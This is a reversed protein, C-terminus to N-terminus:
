GGVVVDGPLLLLLRDCHSGTLVVNGRDFGNKAEKDNKKFPGVGAEKRKNEDKWDFMM